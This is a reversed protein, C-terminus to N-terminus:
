SAKSVVFAKQQIHLEPPKEQQAMQIGLTTQAVFPICFFFHM